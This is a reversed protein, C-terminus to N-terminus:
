GPKKRELRDMPRGSLKRVALELWSYDLLAHDEASANGYYGHYKHKVWANIDLRKGTRFLWNNLPHFGPKHIFATGFDVVCPHGQETVLLNGKSKLDGHCVGRAHMAQLIRLLETFWLDRDPWTAERYATGRVHELLLYRGALLGFCEPVGPLGQLRQYARYERRLTKQRIRLLLGSGMATKIILPRSNEPDQCLLITGQNSTALINEQRALNREIWPLLIKPDPVFRMAFIIAPINSTPALVRKEPVITADVTRPL